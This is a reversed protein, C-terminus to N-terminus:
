DTQPVFTAKVKQWMTRPKRLDELQLNARNLQALAEDVSKEKMALLQHLQDIQQDKTQIQETKAALQTKLQEDKIELQKSLTQFVQEVPQIYQEYAPTDDQRPSEYRKVVADRIVDSISASRSEADTKIKDYLALPMRVTVMKVEQQSM